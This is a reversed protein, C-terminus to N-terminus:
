KLLKTVLEEQKKTEIAKRCYRRRTEEISTKGDLHEVKGILAALLTGTRGHAGFCGIEVIKGDKLADIIYYVVKNLIDVDVVDFDAWKVFVAPYENLGLSIGRKTGTSWIPSVFNMWDTALYVGIDPKRRKASKADKYASCLVQYQGVKVPTQDHIKGCVENKAKHTKTGFMSYNDGYDYPDLMTTQKEEKKKFPKFNGCKMCLLGTSLSEMLAGCYQCNEFEDYSEAILM